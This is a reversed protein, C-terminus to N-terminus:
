QNASLKEFSELKELIQQIKIRIRNEKINDNQSLNKNNKIFQNQDNLKQIEKEKESIKTILSENYSNLEKNKQYLTQILEIARGLNNELNNLETMSFSFDGKKHEFNLM